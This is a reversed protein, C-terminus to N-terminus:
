LVFNDLELRRSPGAIANIEIGTLVRRPGGDTMEVDCDATINTPPLLYEIEEFMHPFLIALMDDIKHIFDGRQLAKRKEPDDIATENDKSFSSVNLSGSSNEKTYLSLGKRAALDLINREITDEAYYCYVETPRTQGLRDIRAIAQVEFSHQVVSELLFVRSACTLNLGANEREGHLLLVLIDPNTRFVNAASENKSKQDIRLCRIGNEKLAWEVIHLSDAWASFVISKAGVDTLKLYLLHRVLTQIKSGYDGYTEMTQIDSFISPDIANYTITRSSKPAPEGAKPQPPPELNVTDVTFRQVTDPNVAVRCVPCTKGEKRLLWVRM